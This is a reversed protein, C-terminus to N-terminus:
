PLSLEVLLYPLRERRNQDFRLIEGTALLRATAQLLHNTYPVCRIDAVIAAVANKWAEIINIM